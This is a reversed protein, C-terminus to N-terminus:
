GSTPQLYHTTVADSDLYKRVLTEEFTTVVAQKILGTRTAAVLFNLTSRRNRIDLHELPEDIMLFDMQSFMSCLLVRALILLVTKEGGSLHSYKVETHPLRLKLVANQDLLVEGSYDPRCRKWLSSLAAYFPQLGVDRLTNITETISASLASSLIEGKYAEILRGRVVSKLDAVGLAGKISGIELIGRELEQRAKQIKESLQGVSQECEVHRTEEHRSFGELGELTLIFESEASLPELRALMSSIYEARQLFARVRQAEQTLLHLQQRTDELKSQAAEFDQNIGDLLTMGLQKDIPRRCVPCPVASNSGSESVSKFLALIGRVYDLRGELVGNQITLDHGQEDLEARRTTAKAQLTKFQELLDQAPDLLLGLKQVESPFTTLERRIRAIDGVRTKASECDTKAKAYKAGLNELELRSNDVQLQMAELDKPSSPVSASAKALDGRLTTTSKHYTKSIADMSEALVRLQEIGFAKQVANIIAEGPPNEAYEFVEGEAMYIIRAFFVPDTRLQEAVERSIADWAQPKSAIQYKQI